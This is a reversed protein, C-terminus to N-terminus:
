LSRTLDTPRRCGTKSRISDLDSRVTCITIDRQAVIQTATRGQAVLTLLEREEHSLKILAPPM